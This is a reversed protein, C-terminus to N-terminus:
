QGGSDHARSGDHTVEHVIAKIRDIQLRLGHEGRGCACECWVRRPWYWPVLWVPQGERTLLATATLHWSM